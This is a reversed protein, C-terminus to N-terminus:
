AGTRQSVSRRLAMRALFRLVEGVSEGGGAVMFKLPTCGSFPASRIRRGLWAPSEGVAELATGVEALVNAQRTQHTTLRFRPRKGSRPLKGPYGILALADADPIGLRDILRWFDASSMTAGHPSPLTEAM